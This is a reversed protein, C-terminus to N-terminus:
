KLAEEYLAQLHLFMDRPPRPSPSALEEETLELLVVIENEGVTDMGLTVFCWCTRNLCCDLNIIKVGVSLNRNLTFMVLPGEESKFDVTDTENVPTDTEVFETDKQVLLPPLGEGPILSQNRSLGDSKLKQAQSSSVSPEGQQQQSPKAARSTESSRGAQQPEDLKALDGGPRVGDSFMVQKPEGFRKQGGSSRLVGAPVMVVPPNAHSSVQQNPPVKSCYEFPNNPNPYCPSTGSGPVLNLQIHCEVCVRAEKNDMYPLVAKQNCCVACLVKGCARCHHRRKWITFKTQCIMCTLADTDPIWFPAVLGLSDQLDAAHIVSKTEATRQNTQETTDVSVTHGGEEHGEAAESQSSLHLSTPRKMNLAGAAQSADHGDAEVSEDSDQRDSSQPESFDHLVPKEVPEVQNSNDSRSEALELNEQDVLLTNFHEGDASQHFQVSSDPYQDVIQKRFTNEEKETTGKPKVEAPVESSGKSLASSANPRNKKLSSLDKPRAGAGIIQVSSGMQYNQGFSRVPSSSDSDSATLAAECAKDEVDDSGHDINSKLHSSNSDLRQSIQGGSIDHELMGQQKLIVEDLINEIEMRGCFVQESVCSTTEVNVNENELRELALSDRINNNVPETKNIDDLISEIELKGIILSTYLSQSAGDLHTSPEIDSINQGDPNVDSPRGNSPETYINGSNNTHIHSTNRYNSEFVSASRNGPEAQSTNRTNFEEHSISDGTDHSHKENSYGGYSEGATVSELDVSRTPASIESANVNTIRQGQLQNLYMNIEENDFDEDALDNFCVIQEPQPDGTSTEGASVVPSRPDFLSTSNLITDVDRTAPQLRHNDDETHTSVRASQKIEEDPKHASSQAPSQNEEIESYCVQEDLVSTDEHGDVLIDSKPFPSLMLEKESAPSLADTQVEIPHYAITGKRESCNAIGKREQVKTPTTYVTSVDEDHVSIRTLSTVIASQNRRQKGEPLSAYRKYPVSSLQEGTVCGFKYTPLSDYPDDYSVNAPERASRRELTYGSTSSLRSPNILAWEQEQHKELFELYGSPRLEQGPIISLAQKEEEEFEDLVKDLDVFDM